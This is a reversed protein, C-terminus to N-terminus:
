GGDGARFYFPVDVGDAGDEEGAEDGDEPQVGGGGFELEEDADRGVRLHLLPNRVDGHCMRLIDNRNIRDPRIM